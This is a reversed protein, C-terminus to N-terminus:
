CYPWHRTQFGFEEKNVHWKMWSNAFILRNNSWNNSEPISRAGLYLQFASCLLALHTTTSVPGFPAIFFHMFFRVFSHPSEFWGANWMFQHTFFLSLLIDWIRGNEIEPFNKNENKNKDCHFIGRRYRCHFPVFFLFICGGYTILPLKQLSLENLPKSISLFEYPINRIKLNYLFFHPISSTLTFWPSFKM